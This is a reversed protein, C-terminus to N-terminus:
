AIGKGALEVLGVVEVGHSLQEGANAQNEVLPHTEHAPSHTTSESNRAVSAPDVDPGYLEGLGLLCRLLQLALAGV